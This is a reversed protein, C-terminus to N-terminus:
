FVHSTIGKAARSPGNWKATDPHYTIFNLFENMVPVPKHARVMVWASSAPFALSLQTGATVLQGGRAPAFGGPGSFRVFRATQM